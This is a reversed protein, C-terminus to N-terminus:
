DAQWHHSYKRKSILQFLQGFNCPLTTSIISYLQFLSSGLSLKLLFVRDILSNYAALYGACRFFLEEPPVLDLSPAVLLPPSVECPPFSRWLVTDGRTGGGWNSVRCLVLM